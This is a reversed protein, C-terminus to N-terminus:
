ILPRQWGGLATEIQQAVALAVDERWHRPVIQVGIPLGEPSVGARVVVAPSATLSYTQVYSFAALHQGTTGHPMAPYACVPSLIVDYREMFSLLVSRWMDWRYWLGMFEAASLAHPRMSELLGQLAPHVQQTGALQLAMDMGAGGDASLLALFLETSQELCPPRDEVVTLGAEALVQAAAKVAGATESTPPVIGNETYFAVKLSKLNVQGPDGLPMPVVRPDRWDAGAIIPLMLSLDEVYRALPGNQSLMGVLGGLMPLYGTGPARGPTPRLGAIGCFHAPVRISGAFDGGLGLPSGGAAIIAAEGGSSGGATRALDYPNNTRGYILNDSEYGYSMEPVNTLGLIIAGAARLRAVVPADQPPIYTARGLTGGTSILGATELADKITVPVGHLPGILQGRALAADAAKAQARATESALQVIANLSPNVAEIRELHAAVVEASSVKRERIAQALSTASTYVLENNSM